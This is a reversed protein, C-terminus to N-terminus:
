QYSSNIKKRYYLYNIIGLICIVTSIAILAVGVFAMHQFKKVEMLAIGSIVLYLSTRVFALLTRQNALRTRDIALVDRLIVDKQHNNNM